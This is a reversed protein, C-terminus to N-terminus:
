QATNSLKEAALKEENLAKKWQQNNIRKVLEEYTIVDNTEPM